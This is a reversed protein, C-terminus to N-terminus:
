RAGPRAASGMQRAVIEVFPRLPLVRTPMTFREISSIVFGADRVLAPVALDPRVGYRGRVAAATRQALWGRVGPPRHPELAVMTGGGALAEAARRLDAAPETSAAIGAVSVVIAPAASGGGLDTLDSVPGDLLTLSALAGEARRVLEDRLAV